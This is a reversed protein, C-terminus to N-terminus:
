SDHLNCSQKLLLMVLEVTPLLALALSAHSSRHNRTVEDSAEVESPLLHRTCSPHWDSSLVATASLV